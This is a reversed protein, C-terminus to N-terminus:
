RVRELVASVAEGADRVKIVGDIDWSGVGAVPKGLQLAFAIESLTGYAGGVAVLADATRAIIANRAIGLGTAVAVDVFPNAHAKDEQPLIGLVTGGEAHAGRSAAEMVGDLGGTVLIAGSRAILRGAEEAQALLEPTVDRGGIVAITLGTRRNKEM